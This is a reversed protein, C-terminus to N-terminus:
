SLPRWEGVQRAEITFSDPDGGMKEFLAVRSMAESLSAYADTVDGREGDVWEVVRYEIDCEATM